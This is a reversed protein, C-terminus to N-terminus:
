IEFTIAKREEYGGALRRDPRKLYTIFGCVGARTRRAQEYLDKFENRSIYEKTTILNTSGLRCVGIIDPHAPM